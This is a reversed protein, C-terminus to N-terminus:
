IRDALRAEEPPWTPEPLGLLWAWRSRTRGLHRILDPWLGRVQDATVFLWVDRSNAERLLAGVWYAREQLTGKGILRRLEGVTVDTWWLFYPRADDHELEPSTPPLLHAQM